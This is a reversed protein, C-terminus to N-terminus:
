KDLNLYVETKTVVVETIDNPSFTIKLIRYKRLEPCISLVDFVNNTMFGFKTLVGINENSDKGLESSHASNYSAIAIFAQTENNRPRTSTANFANFADIEATTQVLSNEYDTPMLTKVETIKKPFTFIDTKPNFSIKLAKIKEDGTVSVSSSRCAKLAEISSFIGFFNFNLGYKDNNYLSIVIYKTTVTSIVCNDHKEYWYYDNFLRQVFVLNTSPTNRTLQIIQLPKTDSNFLEKANEFKPIDDRIKYKISFVNDLVKECLFKISKDKNELINLILETVNQIYDGASLSLISLNTRWKKEFKDYDAISFLAPFKYNFLRIFNQSSFEPFDYPVSVIETM